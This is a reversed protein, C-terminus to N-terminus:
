EVLHFDTDLADLVDTSVSQIMGNYFAHANSSGQERVIILEKPPTVTGSRTVFQIVYRLGPPNTPASYEYGLGRFPNFQALLNHVKSPDIPKPDGPIQWEPQDAPQSAALQTAPATTTGPGIPGAPKAMAEPRLIITQESTQPPYKQGPLVQQTTPPDPFTEKTIIIGKVDAEAISFLDLDRLSEASPELYDIVNSSVKGSLGTSTQVFYNQKLLSDAGGITVTEGSPQTSPSTTAPQTAPADTSVWIQITPKDFRGFKLEDSNDPLFETAELESIHTLLTSIRQDDGAWQKPQLIQWKGDVRQASLTYDGYTVRFQQVDAPQIPALRKDRMDLTAQKLMDAFSSSVLSISGDDVKLYMLDGMPTRNGVAVHFQKGDDRQVDVTFQPQALGSSFDGPDSAPQGESELQSLSTVLGEAAWEAAPASLPQTLTWKDGQKEITTHVGHSDTITV